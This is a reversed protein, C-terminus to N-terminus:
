FPAKPPAEGSLLARLKARSADSLPKSAPGSVVDFNQYEKGPVDKVDVEFVTPGLQSLDDGEVGMVRLKAISYPRAKESFPLRVKVREGIDVLDVMVEIMPDGSKTEVWEDSGNVAQAKYRGQAIKM